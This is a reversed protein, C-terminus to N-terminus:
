EFIEIGTADEVMADANDNLEQEVEIAISEPISGSAPETSVATEPADAADSGGADVADSGGADAADGADTDGALGAIVKDFSEIPSAGRLIKEGDNFVFTPTSRIKWADSAEKINNATDKQMEKNAFCTEFEEGSMGALAANQKLGDKFDGEFAWVDQNKLLLDIFGAYREEPMCRAIMSGYLAPGNLPFEEYIYYVKGTDIYKEKLAQYAGQHFDACHNCTLSFFERIQVPANPDGLGRTGLTPKESLQHIQGTEGIPGTAQNDSPSGHNGNGHDGSGDDGESLADPQSLAAQDTEPSADQQPQNLYFWGAAGAAILLLLILFLSTSSKNNSSM